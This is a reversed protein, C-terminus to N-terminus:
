MIPWICIICLAQKKTMIRQFIESIIPRAIPIMGIKSALMDWEVYKRLINNVEANLSTRNDSAQQEIKSIIDNDLRFSKTTISTKKAKGNGNLAYLVQLYDSDQNTTIGLSM